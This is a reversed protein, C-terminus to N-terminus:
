ITKCYNELVHYEIRGALEIYPLHQMVYLIEVTINLQFTCYIHLVSARHLYINYLMPPYYFYIGPYEFNPYKLVRTGPRTNYGTQFVFM